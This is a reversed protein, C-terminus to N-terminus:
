GIMHKNYICFMLTMSKAVLQEFVISSNKAFTCQISRLYRHIISPIFYYKFRSFFVDNSKHNQYSQLIEPAASDIEISWQDMSEM